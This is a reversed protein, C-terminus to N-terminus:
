GTTMRKRAPTGVYTAPGTTNKTLVSGAGLTVDPGVALGQIVTSNAGILSRAGIRVSGSVCSSPNLRAHNGIWSDHGITVNQDVHVHEHIWVNTSLRAGAAIVVGKGIRVRSAITADPHILTPYTLQARSLIATVRSRVVPSGIAIICAYDSLRSLDSVSGMVESGLQRVFDHDEESPNDDFFTVESYGEDRNKLADNLAFVERGFGGCGIIALHTAM